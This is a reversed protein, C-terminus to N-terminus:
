LFDREPREPSSSFGRKNLQEIEASQSCRTITGTVGLNHPVTSFYSNYYSVLYIGGSVNKTDETKVRYTM